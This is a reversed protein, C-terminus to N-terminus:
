DSAPSATPADGGGPGPGLSREFTQRFEATGGPVVAGFAESFGKGGRMGDLIRLVGDEGAHTLLLAFAHSAAGYAMQADGRPGPRVALLDVQPHKAMWRVLSERPM